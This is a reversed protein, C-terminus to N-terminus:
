LASGKAVWKKCKHSAEASSSFNLRSLFTVLVSKLLKLDLISYLRTLVQVHKNLVYKKIFM